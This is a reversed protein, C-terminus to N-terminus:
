FYYLFSNHLFIALCFTVLLSFIDSMKKDFLELFYLSWNSENSLFRPLWDRYGIETVLRPLWDRYGIETDLRHLLYALLVHSIVSIM